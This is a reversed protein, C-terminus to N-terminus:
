GAREAGEAPHSGDRRHDRRDAADLVRTLMARWESLSGPKELADAAGAALARKEDAESLAASLVVLHLDPRQEAAERVYRFSEVGLLMRDIFVVADPEAELLVGPLRIPDTCTDTPANPAVTAIVTRLIVAHDIDDDVILISRETM